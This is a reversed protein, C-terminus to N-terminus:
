KKGKARPGVKIITDVPSYYDHSVLEKKIEKEGKYFLRYVYVEYGEEGKRAVKVEGPPLSSDEKVVTGPQIVRVERNIKIKQSPDEKEGFIKIIINNDNIRAAIFVPAKTNNTFQFDISGEVVTADLGPPVYSVPRSHPTREKIKLGARLAANYLTTAVQCIGGGIGPSLEGSVLMNANQYGNQPSRPGTRDNFSFVEGPKLITGDVAQVALQVNKSRNEDKQYFTTAFVALQRNVARLEEAAIDPKIKKVTVPVAPITFSVSTAATHPTAAAKFTEATAATKDLTGSLMHLVSEVTTEIDIRRGPQGSIVKLNNNELILRANRPPKYYVQNIAALEEQLRKVDIQITLPIEQKSCLLKLKELTSQNTPLAQEIAAQYNYTAELRAFPIEWTRDQSKLILSANGPVSPFKEQLVQRAEKPSLWSVDLGGVTTGAPIIKENGWIKSTVLYSPIAIASVTAVCILVTVIFLKKYYLM